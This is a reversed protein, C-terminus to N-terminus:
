RSLEALARRRQRIGLFGVLAGAVLVGPITILLVWGRPAAKTFVVGCRLVGGWAGLHSMPASRQIGPSRASSGDFVLAAPPLATSIGQPLL